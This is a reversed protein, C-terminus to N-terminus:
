PASWMEVLMTVALILLALSVVLVFPQWIQMNDALWFCVLSIRERWEAPIQEVTV